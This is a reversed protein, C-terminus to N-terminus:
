EPAKSAMLKNRIDRHRGLITVADQFTKVNGLRRLSYSKAEADFPENIKKAVLDYGDVSGGHTNLIASLAATDMGSADNSYVM